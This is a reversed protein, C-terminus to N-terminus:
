FPQANNGLKTEFWLQFLDLYPRDGAARLQEAVPSLVPDNQALRVAIIHKCIHGKAHDLCDCRHGTPLLAVQHAELGGSVIWGLSQRKVTLELARRLRYADIDTVQLVPCTEILPAFGEDTPTWDKSEKRAEGKWALARKRSLGKLATLRGLSAKALM